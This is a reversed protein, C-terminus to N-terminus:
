TNLEKKLIDEFTQPDVQGAGLIEYVQSLRQGWSLDASNLCDVLQYIRNALQNQNDIMQQLAHASAQLLHDKADPPTSSLQPIHKQLHELFSVPDEFLQTM